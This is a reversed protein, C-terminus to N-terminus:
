GASSALLPRSASGDRRLRRHRAGRGRGRLGARPRPRLENHRHAPAPRRARPPAYPAARPLPPAPRARRGGRIARAARRLAAGLGADDGRVALSARSRGSPRRARRVGVGPARRPCGCWRPRHGTRGARRPTGERDRGGRGVPDTCRLRVSGGRSAPDGVPRAQARTGARHRARRHVSRTCGPVGRSGGGAPRRPLPRADVAPSLDRAASALPPTRRRARRAGSVDGTRGPELDAANREEQAVLRLEELRRIEAQAFDDFAFEALAPGRWLALAARLRDRREDPPLRRADALMQEFRHADLQGRAVNLVYGPSRTELVDAGLAKRLRGVSNQLSATATKPLETGWLLDVLRDTPVLRGAELVLIALLGLQRPGGM